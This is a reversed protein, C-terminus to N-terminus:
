QLIKNKMILRWVSRRHTSVHPLYTGCRKRRGLSIFSCFRFMWRLGDEQWIQVFEAPVQNKYKEIIEQPMDAVKIFNDLMNEESKIKLMM